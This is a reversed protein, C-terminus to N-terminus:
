RGGPRPIIRPRHRLLIHLEDSAPDLANLGEPCHKVLVNHPVQAGMGNEVEVADVDSAICNDLGRAVVPARPMFVPEIRLLEYVCPRANHNSHPFSATSPAAASREVLSPRLYPSEAPPPDDPPFKERVRCAGEFGGPARLVVSM